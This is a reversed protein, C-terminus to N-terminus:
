AAPRSRSRAPPSPSPSAKKSPLARSCTTIHVAYTSGSASAIPRCCSRPAAARPPAADRLPRAAPPADPRPLLRGPTPGLGAQRRYCPERGPRGIRCACLCRRAVAPRHQCGGPPPDPTDWRM